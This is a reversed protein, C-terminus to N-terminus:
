NILAELISWDQEFPCKKIPPPKNVDIHHTQSPNENSNGSAQKQIFLKSEQLADKYWTDPHKQLWNANLIQTQLDLWMQPTDDTINFKTLCDAFNTHRKQNIYLVIDEKKM